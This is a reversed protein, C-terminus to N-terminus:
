QGALEAFLGAWRSELRYFVPPQGYPADIPRTGGRYESGSFVHIWRDDPFYVAREAAQEKVVPAVLIDRGLLYQQSDEYARDEEYYFFLPRIAPVGQQYYEDLVGLLYPKLRKHIRSFLATLSVTLGDHDFQVNDKPRNGEHSRMLPSFCSMELWRIYLDRSRKISAVTIYGGIDSHSVGMGSLGASIQARIVSGMGYDDSFDCHQDGNWLMGAHRSTGSYAARVFFFVDEGAGSEVLAERNMRSWLVPWLNHILEPDGAHLICDTPLYESFDAMWGSLGYGIMNTKVIAKMWEFADPNTLDVMGVPFSTTKVIYPQRHQNVVLYGRSEAEAYQEGDCALFPNIYGLFRIGERKWESIKHRLGPYLNEDAKWNWFLQKGFGTIREGQWDQAWIGCLEAGARKMAGVKEECVSSGGQIGLIIGDHIWEPLRPQIGLRTNLEGVLDTYNRAFTLVIEAPATSFSLSHCDGARFDLVAHASTDVHCSYRATSIFDPQVQYTSYKEFPMPKKIGLLKLLEKRIISWTTTHESIWNIVRCGRLNFRAFQEGCGFIMEDKDAAFKVRVAQDEALNRFSLSVSNGTERIDISVKQFALSICESESIEGRGASFFRTRDRIRFHGKKMAFTQRRKGVFFAPDGPSHSLLLRDNWRLELVHNNAELKISM